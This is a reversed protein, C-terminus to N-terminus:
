VTWFMSIPVFIRTADTLNECELPPVEDGFDYM